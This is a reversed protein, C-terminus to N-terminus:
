SSGEPSHEGGAAAVGRRGGLVLVAVLVVCVAVLVGAIPRTVFILPNGSSMILAQRLSQEMLPGLVLALVLPAVEYQLKRLIYGALGFAVMVWVDFINHNISYTGIVTILLILPFLIRYPVRLLQVWLGVLPLNLVLLMVNGIYLSAIVGWFIEPHQAMLLPGPQVGHIVLAGLLLATVANSPLGLSLLPIMAGAVAANNAAEPGAVGEIAGHGFREPQRAVRKEVAYSLFAATVPGGGPLVGLGFGLASGRLIAAWSDAWDRLTPWLGRITRTLVQGQAMEEVNFLIESVGFLGMVVAALDFGGALNVFGFTFREAGNVVDMGVTSLFVGLALMVMAKLPSGGVMFLTTV